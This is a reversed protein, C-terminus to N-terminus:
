TFDGIEAVLVPADPDGLRPLGAADTGAAIGAYRAAAGSNDQSASALMVVVVGGVALLAVLAVLWM